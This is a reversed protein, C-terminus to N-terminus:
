IRLLQFVKISRNDVEKKKKLQKIIKRVEKKSNVFYVPDKEEAYFIAYKAKGPSGEKVEIANDPGVYAFEVNDVSYTTDLAIYSNSTDTTIFDGSYTTWEGNGDDAM